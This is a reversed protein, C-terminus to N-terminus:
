LVGEGGLLTVITVDFPPESTTVKLDLVTVRTVLLPLVSRM